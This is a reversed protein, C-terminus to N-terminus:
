MENWAEVGGPLHSLGHGENKPSSAREVDWNLARALTFCQLCDRGDSPWVQFGLVGKGWGARSRAM